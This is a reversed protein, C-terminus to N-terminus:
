MGREAIRSSSRMSKEAASRIVDRLKEDGIASVLTEVFATDEASLEAPERVMPGPTALRRIRGIRFRVDKVGYPTLKEVIQKKHFTLQQIWIPQDINVILESETLRSPWMHASLTPGFLINWESRIRGLRVGATLGLKKILPSLVHAAKEVLSGKKCSRFSSM